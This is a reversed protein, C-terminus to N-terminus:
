KQCDKLLAEFRAKLPTDMKSTQQLYRIRDAADKKRGLDFYARALYYKARYWRSSEKKSGAAVIRWQVLAENASTRSASLSKAYGEQVAGRKPHAAVLQRFLSQSEKVQGTRLLLEGQIIQLNLQSPQDLKGAVPALITVAQQEVSLLAKVTAQNAQSGFEHLQVVVQFLDDPNAGALSSIWQSAENARGQGSLAVVLWARANRTWDIEADPSAQLAAKLLQEASALESPRYRIRIRAANLAAVQDLASWTEPPNGSEDVLVSEYFSAARDALEAVEGGQAHVAKLHAQWCPALNRIAAGFHNSSQRISSYAAIAEPWNKQAARMRGLWLRVQDASESGPWSDLHELLLEEYLKIKTRDSRAMQTTASIAALHADSAKKYEALRLATERLRRVYEDAHDRKKEIFAATLRHKFAIDMQGLAVARDSAKEYAGLARDYDGKLYLAEATRGLIELGAGGEADGAIRVLLQSSRRGWYPGHRDEIKGVLAIAEKRLPDADHDKSAKILTALTELYAFDLEPHGSGARKLVERATTAKNQALRIRVLEATAQQRIGIPTEANVLSALLRESHPLDGRLRMCVAQQLRVDLTLPHGAPLQKISEALHELAVTLSAIRDDSQPKYCLSQNEYAEGLQLLVNNKLSFLEDASLEGAEGSSQRRQPIAREVDNLLTEFERIARRTQARAANMAETESGGVQAEQRALQGQALLGLAAQFQVLFVRPNTKYKRRFEASRRAAEAWLQPREIPPSHLAHEGYTRLLEILLEARDLPAIGSSALREGAFSEALVFLRRQRLGETFQVDQTQAQVISPAAVVSLVVTLLLALARRVGQASAIGFTSQM